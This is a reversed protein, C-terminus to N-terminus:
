FTITHLRWSWYTTFNRATEIYKFNPLYTKHEDLKGARELSLVLARITGIQMILEALKEQVYLYSDAGITVAMECAIATVM